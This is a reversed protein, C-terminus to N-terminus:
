TTANDDSADVSSQDIVSAIVLPEGVNTVRAHTSHTPLSRTRMADLSLSGINNVNVNIQQKQGGFETQNLREAQWTILEVRAKAIAIADRDHECDELLLHAKDVMAHAGESRAEKIREKANPLGNAYKSMAPQSVGIDRALKSLSEGSALWSCIYELPTENQETARHAIEAALARAQPRGAM